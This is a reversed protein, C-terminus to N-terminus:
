IEAKLIPVTTPQPSGGAPEVTIAIAKAQSLDAHLVVDNEAAATTTFLGISVPGGEGIAWVQYTKDEALPALGQVTLLAIGQDKIYLLRGSATDGDGLTRVFTIGPGGGQSLQLAINWAQLGVVAAVLLAAVAHPAL